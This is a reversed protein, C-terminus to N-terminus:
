IKRLIYCKYLAVFRMCEHIFDLLTRVFGYYTSEIFVHVTDMKRLTAFSKLFNKRAGLSRDVKGPLHPIMGAHWGDM